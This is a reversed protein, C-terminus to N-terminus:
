DKFEKKVQADLAKLHTQYMLDNIKVQVATIIDVEKVAECDRDIIDKLEPLIHKLEKV